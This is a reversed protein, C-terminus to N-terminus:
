DNVQDDFNFAGGATHTMLNYQPSGLFPISQDTAGSAPNTQLWNSYLTYGYVRIYAASSLAYTYQLKAIGTNNQYPSIGETNPDIPGLYQHAPTDPAAYISPKTFSTASSAIPTGFPLNYVVSDAYPLYAGTKAFGCGTVNFGAWPAAAIQQNC